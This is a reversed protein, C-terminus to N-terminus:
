ADGVELMERLLSATGEIQGLYNHLLTMARDHRRLSDCLTEDGVRASDAANVINKIVDADRRIDRTLRQVGTKSVPRETTTTM